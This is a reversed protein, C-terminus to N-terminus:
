SRGNPHHGARRAAAQSDVRQYACAWTRMARRVQSPPIDAADGFYLWASVVINCLTPAIKAKHAGNSEIIQKRQRLLTLWLDYQARPWWGRSSGGGHGPWTRQPHDLLGYEVFTRVTRAVVDRCGIERAATLLDAEVYSEAHPPVWLRTM